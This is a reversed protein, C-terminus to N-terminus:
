ARAAAFIAGREGETLALENLDSRLVVPRDKPDLLALAFVCDGMQMLFPGGDAFDQVTEGGAPRELRLNWGNNQPRPETRTVPLLAPRPAAAARKLAPKGLAYWVLLCFVSLLGFVVVPVAVNMFPEGRALDAESMIRDPNQPDYRSPPAFVRPGDSPVYVSGQHEGGGEEPRLRYRVQYTCGLAMGGRTACTGDADIMDASVGRANLDARLGVRQWATVGVYLPVLLALLGGILWLARRRRDKESETLALSRRPFADLVPADTM